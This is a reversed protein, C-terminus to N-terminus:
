GLSRTPGRRPTRAPRTHTTHPCSLTSPGSRAIDRLRLRTFKTVGNNVAYLVLQEVVNRYMGELEVFIRFTRRPLQESRVVVTRVAEVV